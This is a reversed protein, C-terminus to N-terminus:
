SRLRSRGSTLTAAPGSCTSAGTRTKGKGTEFDVIGVKAAKSVNFRGLWPRGSAVAIGLSFLLWTKLADARGYVMGVCARPLLGDVLFDIPPPEIDWAGYEFGLGEPKTDANAAQVEALRRTMAATGNLLDRM